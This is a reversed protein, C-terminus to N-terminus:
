PLPAYPEETMLPACTGCIRHGRWDSEFPRQCRLCIPHVPPAGHGLIAGHLDLVALARCRPALPRTAERRLRDADALGDLTLAPSSPPARDANDPNGSTGSLGPSDRGFIKHKGDWM